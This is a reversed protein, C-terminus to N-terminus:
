EKKWPLSFYRTIIPRWLENFPNGFSTHGDNRHYVDFAHQVGKARFKFIQRALWGFPTSLNMSVYLHQTMNICDGVDDLIPDPSYNKHTLYVRHATAFVLWMDCIWFLPWLIMPWNAGANWLSRMIGAWNHIWLPDGNPTRSFNKLFTWSLQYLNKRYRDGALGMAWLVPETQDRSAGWEKDWPNDLPNGNHPKTYRRVCLGWATGIQLRHLCDLVIPPWDLLSVIDHNLRWLYGTIMEGTRAACDGPDGDWQIPLHDEDFNIKSMHDKTLSYFCSWHQWALSYGSKLIM